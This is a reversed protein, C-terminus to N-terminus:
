GTMIGDTYKISNPIVNRVLKQKSETYSNWNKRAM